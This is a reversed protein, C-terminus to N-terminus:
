RAAIEIQGGSAIALDRAAALIRERPAQGKRAVPASTTSM